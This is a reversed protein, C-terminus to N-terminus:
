LKPALDKTGGMADTATSPNWADKGSLINSVTYTKAQEDTLQRSWKVRAEPRAGPGSSKYESYRATKENEPKGWNNWGDPKLHDGMECEIYAVQGFPRWPRGLDAMPPGKVPATKDWPTPDGSLRCQLFVFGFPHDEPTSAATIHGGNKSHIECHDFVATASGYIFDVRGEVYCNQFYQRGNNIMLTDQWGLLRCQKFVARDGDVRLALAQGHDGSTNQFTINEAQLDDALVIVGTGKFQPNTADDTEKVNLAYTLVTGAADEGVLRLNRKTKPVIIQGSYSGPKILILFPKTANEPAAAIAAQVTTHTGSGDFAVVADYKKEAAEPKANRPERRIFQALSPVGRRLEEAVIRGFLVYGESNLHTGDYGGEKKPSFAYCGERGIKECLARSLDHLEVLPVQKERAIARVIDAHETLSSTIKHSDAPDGFQRRVLSTVLVPVAGAARTEDVYREMYARYEALTTSRGPKGPEDNHGFQILYYDGKLALAKEWSGEKIFSMSSRGGRSTNIVTAGDAIFQAFGLGWGASDTVTSDGVLVIKVPAANLVSVAAFFCSWRLVSRFM